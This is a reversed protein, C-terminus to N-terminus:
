FVYLVIVIALAWLTVGALLPKDQLILEEPAGGENKVHILYLYRFIGYLVFPITLMMANNAPLNPASFTYFSYSVTAAATVLGIMDDLLRLNYEELSARHSNANAEGLLVLEQRRRGIAIFLALLTICIYLWPSFRAAQIVVVGAVVRLLHFAAVLFVDVLVVHKLWFSYVVNLLLYAAIVLAFGPGLWLAFIFAAVVFVAIATVAVRPALEGSALPRFRKTPHQRDKDRDVLDNLLYVASAALCFVIFALVTKGLMQVQFLKEDFVLAAFVFGNKTWQRPRMTKLLAKIM